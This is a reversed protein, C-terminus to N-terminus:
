AHAVDLQIFALDLLWDLPEMNTAIVKFEARALFPLAPQCSLNGLAIAALHNPLSSPPWGSTLAQTPCLLDIHTILEPEHATRRVALQALNQEQVENLECEM